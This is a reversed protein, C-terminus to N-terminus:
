HFPVGDAQRAPSSAMAKKLTNREQSLLENERRLRRLDAAMDDDVTVGEQDLYTALWRVFTTRSM